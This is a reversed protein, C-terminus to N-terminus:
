LLKPDLVVHKIYKRNWTYTIHIKEDTIQIISPYSYEGPSDELIVETKWTMGGDESIATNLPYRDEKSHNYVLVVRGDLINVADIASNPNPLAIPRASSWTKGQDYSEATCISGIQHSRALLKITGDKGFFLTPQIIGFLQSDVNIPSSKSWTRGMDYTIDIWCGWRMWSEISSGCLLAGNLLLLPKNKTPGIIGAPLGEAESWHNGEDYSRKLFGSWQLPNRGVKYFLLVEKSPMTFLVPNWCAVGTTEGIKKPSSWGLQDLTSLWIAVDNAGEESGAFWACLISGSSTQTLTSAHCSAFPPDTFIFEQKIISPHTAELSLFFAFVFFCCYSKLTKKIM